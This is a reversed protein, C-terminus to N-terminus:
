TSTSQTQRLQIHPTTAALTGDSAAPPAQDSPPPPEPTSKEEYAGFAFSLPVPTIKRRELIYECAEICDGCSICHNMAPGRPLALGEDREITSLLDRPPLGMPCVRDCANCSVCTGAKDFAIGFSKSLTAVSYYLGVPCWGRCFAWNWWKAHGVIAVTLALTSAATLAVARASGAVVVRADVWWLVISVSFLAAYLWTELRARRRKAADNANAVVQEQLRNVQALPCGFGCFLRGGVANVLFTVFYCASGFVFAALLARGFTSPSGFARHHGGWLDIRGLGALPVVAVLAISLLTMWARLSRFRHPRPLLVKM